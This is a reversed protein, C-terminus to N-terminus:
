EPLHNLLLTYAATTVMDFWTQAAEPSLDSPLEETEVWVGGDICVTLTQNHQPWIVEISGHGKHDLSLKYEHGTTLLWHLFSGITTPSIIM